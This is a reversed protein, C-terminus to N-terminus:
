NGCSEIQMVTAVLNPDIGYAASWKVIDKEWHRVEPTFLPSLNAYLASRSADLAGREVRWVGSTILWGLLAAVVFAELPILRIVWHRSM